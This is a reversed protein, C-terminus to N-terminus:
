PPRTFRKPGRGPVDYEREAAQRFYAMQAAGQELLVPSIVEHRFLGIAEALKSDM